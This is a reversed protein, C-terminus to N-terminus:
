DELVIDLRKSSEDPQVAVKLGSTKWDTYRIPVTKAPRGKGGEDDMAPPYIVITYQGAMLGRDPLTKFRGAADCVATAARINQGEDPRFGVECQGVAQGKFTVTGSVPITRPGTSRRGCGVALVSAVAVCWLWARRNGM